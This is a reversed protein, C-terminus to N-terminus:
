IAIAGMLTDVAPRFAALIMSFGVSSPANVTFSDSAVAVTGNSDYSGVDKFAAGVVRLTLNTGATPPGSPTDNGCACMVWENSQSPTISGTISTGTAVTTTSTDLGAVGGYDAATLLCYNSTVTCVVNNSGTAPNLLYWMSTWRTQGGVNQAISAIRTMAVTNYTIGTINDAVGDTGVAAIVLLNSAANVSYAVTLNGSGGNNGLDSSGNFTIAM